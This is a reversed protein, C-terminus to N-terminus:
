PGSRTSALQQAPNSGVFQELESDAVFSQVKTPRFLEQPHFVLVPQYAKLLQSDPAGYASTAGTLAALAVLAWIGVAASTRKAASM